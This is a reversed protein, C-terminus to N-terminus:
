CLWLDPTLLPLRFLSPTHCLPGWTYPARWVAGLWSLSPVKIKAWDFSSAAALSTTGGSSVRRELARPTEPKADSKEKVADGVPPTGAAGNTGAAHKADYGLM